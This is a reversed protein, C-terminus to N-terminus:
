EDAVEDPDTIVHLSGDKLLFRAETLLDDLWSLLDPFARFEKNEEMDWQIVEPSGNKSLLYYDGYNTMAIAFRDGPILSEAWLERNATVLDMEPEDPAYLSFLENSFLLGGNFCKMLHFYADPFRAGLAKEARLALERVDQEAFPPSLLTYQELEAIQAMRKGLESGALYPLLQQFDVRM